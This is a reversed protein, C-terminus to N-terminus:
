NEKSVPRHGGEMWALSSMLVRRIINCIIYCQFWTDAPLGLSPFLKDASQLIGASSYPKDVIRCNEDFEQFIM